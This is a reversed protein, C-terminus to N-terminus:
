MEAVLMPKSDIYLGALEGLKSVNGSLSLIIYIYVMIIHYVHTNELTLRSAYFQVHLDINASVITLRIHFVIFHHYPFLIADDITVFVVTSNGVQRGRQQTCEGIETVM